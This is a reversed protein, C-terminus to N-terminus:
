SLGGTDQAMIAIAARRSLLRGLVFRAVKNVTGTMMIAFNDGIEIGIQGGPMHVTVDRDVLGLKHAVRTTVYDKENGLMLALEGLRGSVDPRPVLHRQFYTANYMGGFIGIPGPTSDPVHGAHELAHWAVELFHRHQPDLLQAELQLIRKLRKTLLKFEDNAVTYFASM